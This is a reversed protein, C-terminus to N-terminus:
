DLMPKIKSGVWSITPGLLLGVITAGVASSRMGSAAFRSAVFGMLVVGIDFIIRSVFFPLPKLKQSLIKASADYPSLGMQANMYVAAVFVFCLIAISFVGCREAFTGDAIFQHVGNKSWLWCFFDATYGILVMNFITGFGILGPEFIIVILLMFVNLFLQWNGFTWGLANAINLNMFTAPDTGWGVEILFSLFFGMFFIAATMLIFKKWFKPVIFQKFTFKERM